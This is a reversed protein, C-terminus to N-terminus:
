QCTEVFDIPQETILPSGEGCEFRKFDVIEVQHKNLVEQVTMSEDLLYDQHILCTEEDRKAAPKDKASGIKLPNMGVVHQCLKKGLDELSENDMNDSNSKLAILGCLRGFLVNGQSNGSPHAYGVIKTDEGAQLCTARKLSANEGVVGIMLALHDSLPKGDDAKLSGLQEASLSSQITRSVSKTQPRAQSHSFNLCVKTATEVIKRFEQNRAVFDTECNVEVLVGHSKNVAVGILGQSTQRGELKTAKSWGLAQAQERLWVEAKELDNNHMELAKKCNSFTYGTKKRLAALVSKEQSTSSFFRTWVRTCIM